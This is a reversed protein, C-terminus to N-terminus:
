PLFFSFSLFYPFKNRSSVLSFAVSLHQTQYHPPRFNLDTGGKAENRFVNEKKSLVLVEAWLSGSPTM